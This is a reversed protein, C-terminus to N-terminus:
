TSEKIDRRNKLEILLSGVCEGESNSGDAYWWEMRNPELKRKIHLGNNAIEKIVFLEANASKRIAEITEDKTANLAEWIRNSAELERIRRDRKALEHAIHAKSHLGEATMASVHDFYFDAEPQMNELEDYRNM